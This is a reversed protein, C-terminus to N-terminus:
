IREIAAGLAAMTADHARSRLDFQKVPYEKPPLALCQCRSELGHIGLASALM